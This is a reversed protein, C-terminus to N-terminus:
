KCVTINTLIKVYKKHIFTSTSWSHDEFVAIRSPGLNLDWEPSCYNLLDRFGIEREINIHQAHM